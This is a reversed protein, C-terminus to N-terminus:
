GIEYYDKYWEIFKSVGDKISTKPKYGIWEELKSTDAYTSEVDGLQMPM